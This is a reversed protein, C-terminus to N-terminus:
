GGERIERIDRCVTEYHVDLLQQIEYRSKLEEYFLRKVTTQRNAKGQRRKRRSKEAAAKRQARQKPTLTPM